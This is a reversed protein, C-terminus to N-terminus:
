ESVAYDMSVTEFQTFLALAFPAGEETSFGRQTNGELLTESALVNWYPMCNVRVHLFARETGPGNEFVCADTQAKLIEKFFYM